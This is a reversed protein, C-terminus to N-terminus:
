DRRLNGLSLDGYVSRFWRMPLKPDVTLCNVPCDDQCLFCIHCDDPYVVEPQGSAQNVRLVDVPCAQICKDCSICVSYDITIRQTM